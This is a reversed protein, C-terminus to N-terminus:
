VKLKLLYFNSLKQISDVLKYNSTENVNFEEGKKYLETKKIESLNRNSDLAKENSINRKEIEFKDNDNCL